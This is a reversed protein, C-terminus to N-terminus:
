GHQVLVAHRRQTVLPLDRAGGGPQAARLAPAAELCLRSAAIAPVILLPSSPGPPASMHSLLEAHRPQTIRNTRPRPALQAELSRAQLCRLTQTEGLAHYLARTSWPRGRSSWCHQMLMMGNAHKADRLCNAFYKAGALRLAATLHSAIHEAKRSWAMKRQSAPYL